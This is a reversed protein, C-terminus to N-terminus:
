KSKKQISGRTDQFQATGSMGALVRVPASTFFAIVKVTQSAADVSAGLDIVKAAYTLGTEDVHFQFSQGRMLWRLAHSSPFLEIELHSDDLVSLLKDNPFVNEHEHIMLKEVLGSFPAYIQCGRVKIRALETAAIAKKVEAEALELDLLSNSGLQTLKQNNAYIVKKAGHDAETATLEAEYKECNIQVLLAGKKFAQGEKFPLSAISGEVQAFLVAQSSPRVIGRISRLDQQREFDSFDREAWGDVSILLYTCCLIAWCFSSDRFNLRFTM